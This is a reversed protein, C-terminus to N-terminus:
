WGYESIYNNRDHDQNIKRRNAGYSKDYLEVQSSRQLCIKNMLIDEITKLRTEAVELEKSVTGSAVMDLQDLLRKITRYVALESYIKPVYHMEIDCTTVPTIGSSAVPLIEIMGYTNNAKYHDDLYLEQKTTTGYFVRDIRYINEEGVYYRRQVTSDIKGITSWSAQIPTGCEIYILNDVKTIAEFIEDDTWRGVTNINEKIDDITCLRLLEESTTPDSYESYLGTGGDYFKIKYWYTRLGTTDTYSVSWSNASTKAEGDDTAPINTLETYTGYITSSKYIYVRTISDEGPEAWSIRQSIKIM